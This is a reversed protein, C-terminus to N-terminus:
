APRDALTAAHVRVAQLALHLEAVGSPQTLGRGTLEELRRLRYRVTNRHIHLRGAATATAGEEAFWIGLTDLLTDREAPPLDLVPGLIGRALAVAADPASVLLVPIPVRGYQVIDRAGAPVTAAALRAQRLAAPTHGLDAYPDSLGIPGTSLEALVTRVREAPTRPTLVVVGVHADAEVRWVSRIGKTRLSNEAQPVVQAGPREPRGSAVLFSGRHPLRLATASEWLLSGDGTDGRVLVDFMANRAQSEAHAREALTDRYADTVSSSYDDILLWLESGAHLLAETAVRDSAAETLIAAWIYKGAV